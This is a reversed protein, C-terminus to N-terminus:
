DGNLRKAAIRRNMANRWGDPDRYPDPMADPDTSGHRVASRVKMMKVRNALETMTEQQDNLNRELLQL